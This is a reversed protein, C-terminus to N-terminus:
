VCVNSLPSIVDIVNLEAKIRVLLMASTIMLKSMCDLMKSIWDSM